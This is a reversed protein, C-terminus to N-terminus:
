HASPPRGDPYSTQNLAALLHDVTEEPSLASTDVTLRAMRIYLPRRRAFREEAEVPDALVPRAIEQLM